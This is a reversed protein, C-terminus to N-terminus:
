EDFELKDNFNIITTNDFFSPEYEVKGDKENSKELIFTKHILITEDINFIKLEDIGKSFGFNDFSAHPNKIIRTM